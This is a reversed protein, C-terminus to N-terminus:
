AADICVCKPAGPNPFAVPSCTCSVCVGPWNSNTTCTGVLGCNAINAVGACTGTNCWQNSCGAYVVPAASFIGFGVFVLGASFMVKSLKFVM